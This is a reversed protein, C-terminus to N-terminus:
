NPLVYVAKAQFLDDTMEPSSIHQVVNQTRRLKFNM